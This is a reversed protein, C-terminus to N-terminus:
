LAAFGAPLAPPHQVCYPGAWAAAPHKISRGPWAPKAAAASSPGTAQVPVRMSPGLPLLSLLGTCGAQECSSSDSGFMWSGALRHSAAAQQQQQQQGGEEKVKRGLWSM